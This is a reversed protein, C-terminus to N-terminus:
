RSIMYDPPPPPPYRTRYGSFGFFMEIGRTTGWYMFVHRLLSFPTKLYNIPRKGKQCLKLKPEIIYFPESRRGTRNCKVKRVIKRLYNYHSWNKEGIVRRMYYNGVRGGHSWKLWWSGSRKQLMLFFGESWLYTPKYSIFRIISNCRVKMAELAEWFRWLKERAM